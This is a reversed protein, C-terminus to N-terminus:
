KKDEASIDVTEELESDANEVVMTKDGGADAAADDLDVDDLLVDDEAARKRMFWWLGGGILILLLNGGGVVLAITLMDTEESEETEPKPEPAAEPAPEPKAQIPEVPKPEPIPEPVPEPEPEPEKAPLGKIAAAEPKFTFNNGSLTKGSVNIVPLHRGVLGEKDAVGEFIGDPTLTFEIHKRKGNEDELWAEISGSGEEVVEPELYVLYVAATAVDSDDITLKVPQVIQTAQRRQRVFTKGDANIVLEVKGKSLGEGLNVSFKGDGQSHLPRAETEEGKVIQTTSVQVVDLFQPDNVAEGKESFYVEVPIFEGIAMRNPVDTTIMKLDTVVTVRNDPDTAAVINWEGTEPRSITILDYGEDRHWDVNTPPNNADFTAGSPTTVRTPKRPDKNFVLLTAEDISDDLQFKNGVLPVSDPKSVKEFMRLFVRQLEDANNVQEYWGDTMSSLARMLEHDARESLAITHIKGGAAKIRPGLEALIRQRSDANERKNKSVDVMGDTLLIINRRYQESDKDWDATARTLVDEINTFQGPSSIRESVSRARKKWSDNIVALPVLMNTYQAFTWVGARNEPPTLGVILRLASRRLNKPDNQKMSGSIDILIRTDAKDADQASVAPVMTFALLFIFFLHHRKVIM